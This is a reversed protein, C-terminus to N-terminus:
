RADGVGNGVDETGSQARATAGETRLRNAFITVGSQTRLYLDSDVNVMEPEVWLGFRMGLANVQAILPNLGRPFKEPNVTL